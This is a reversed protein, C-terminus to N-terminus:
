LRMKVIAQDNVTRVLLKEQKANHSHETLTLSCLDRQWQAGGALDKIYNVPIGFKSGLQQVANTHLVYTNPIPDGPIEFGLKVNGNSYFDIKDSPVLFDNLFQNDDIVKDWATKTSLHANDIKYNLKNQLTDRTAIQKETLEINDM